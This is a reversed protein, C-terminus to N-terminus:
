FPYVKCLNIAHALTHILSILIIFFGIFKHFKIFDDLPLFNTGIFSNRLWTLLRRLVLLIILSCNFNLLIGATRAIRVAWNYKSYYSLQVSILIISIIIYFIIIAFFSLNNRYFSLRTYKSFKSNIKKKKVDNKHDHCCKLCNLFRRSGNAFSKEEKYSETTHNFIDHKNKVGGITTNDERIGSKDHEDEETSKVCTSNTYEDSEILM